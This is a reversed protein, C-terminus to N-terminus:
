PAANGSSAPQGPSAFWDSPVLAALVVAAFGGMLGAATISLSAMAGFIDAAELLAAARDALAPAGPADWRLAYTHDPFGGYDYLLEPREGNHVTFQPEEWHGSVILIAKPREPLDDIARALFDGMPRWEPPVPGGEDLFFCPGGGHPLFFTPQKMSRFHRAEREAQLPM